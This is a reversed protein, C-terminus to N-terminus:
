LSPDIILSNKPKFLKIGYLLIDAAESFHTAKEPPVDYGGKHNKRESSKDKKLKGAEKVVSAAICSDYWNSANLVNYKFWLVDEDKGTLVNSWLQHRIEHTPSQRVYGRHVIWSGFQSDELGSIVTESVTSENLSNQGIQTQDYYVFCEKRGHYQYYRKFEMVCDRIKMPHRVGIANIISLSRSDRNYNAVVMCNFRAGSDYGLHLIGHEFDFEEDMRCDRQDLKQFDFENKSLFSSVQPYYGHLNESLDSYFMQKSRRVRQNLVSIRFDDVDLIGLLDEFYDPGLVNINQLSSAFMTMTTRNRIQDIM